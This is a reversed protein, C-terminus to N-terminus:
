TTSEQSSLKEIWSSASGFTHPERQEVISDMQPYGDVWSHTLTWEMDGVLVLAMTQLGPDEISDAIRRMEEVHVRMRETPM